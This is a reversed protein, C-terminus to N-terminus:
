LKTADLTPAKSLNTSYNWEVDKKGALLTSTESIKKKNELSMHKGTFSIKRDSIQNKISSEKEQTDVRANVADLDLAVDQNSCNMKIYNENYKEPVLYRMKIKKNEDMTGHYNGEEVEDVGKSDAFLPNKYLNSHESLYEHEKASMKMSYLYFKERLGEYVLCKIHQSKVSLHIIQSM